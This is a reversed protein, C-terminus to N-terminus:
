LIHCSKLEYIRHLSGDLISEMQLRMANLLGGKLIRHISIVTEKRIAGMPGEGRYERM